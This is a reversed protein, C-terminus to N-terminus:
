VLREPVPEVEFAEGDGRLLCAASAPTSTDIGLVNM